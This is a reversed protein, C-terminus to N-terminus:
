IRKKGDAKHIYKTVLGNQSNSVYVTDAFGASSKGIYSFFVKHYTFDPFSFIERGNVKLRTTIQEANERVGLMDSTCVQLDTFVTDETSFDADRVDTVPACAYTSYIKQNGSYMGAIYVLFAMLLCIFKNIKNRM